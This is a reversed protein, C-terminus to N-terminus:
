ENTANKGRSESSGIYPQILSRITKKVLDPLTSDDVMATLAAPPVSGPIRVKKPNSTVEPSVEYDGVASFAETGGSFSPEAHPTNLKGFQVDHTRIEDGANLEAGNKASSHPKTL